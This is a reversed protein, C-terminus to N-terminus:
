DVFCFENAILLAQALQEWPGLQPRVPGGFEDKAKWVTGPGNGPKVEVVVTAWTYQDSNLVARIDVVFDITDGKRVEVAPATM